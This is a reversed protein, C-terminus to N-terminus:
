ASKRRIFGEFFGKKPKAAAEMAAFGAGKPKKALMSMHKAMSEEIKRGQHSGINEFLKKWRASALKSM